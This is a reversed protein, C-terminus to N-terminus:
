RRTEDMAVIPKLQTMGRPAVFGMSVLLESACQPDHLLVPIGAM